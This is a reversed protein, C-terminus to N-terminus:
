FLIGSTGSYALSAIECSSTVQRKPYSLMPFILNEMGPDFRIYGYGIHFFYM